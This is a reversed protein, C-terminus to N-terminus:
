STSAAETVTQGSIGRSSLAFVTPLPLGHVCYLSLVITRCLLLFFFDLRLDAENTRARYLVIGHRRTIVPSTM